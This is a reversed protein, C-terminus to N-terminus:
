RSGGPAPPWPNRYENLLAGGRRVQPQNGPTQWRRPASLDYEYGRGFRGVLALSSWDAGIYPVPNFFRQHSADRLELHLHPASICTGQSDGSLGVVEGRRVTQGIRLTARKLLHGYLSSLNGAHNIVLNHPLSGHPGDIEAVTGDGIARVPTGCAATFDLGAHVGQLNGYTSRRQRYAGITNGYGQGLLWTNVGPAGAFPLGFQQAPRAIASDPLAPAYHALALGSLLLTLGTWLM